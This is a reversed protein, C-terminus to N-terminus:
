TYMKNSNGRLVNFVTQMEKDTIKMFQDVYKHMYQIDDYMGFDVVLNKALETKPKLMASAVGGISNKLGLGTGSLVLNLNPLSVLVSVMPSLLSRTNFSNECSNLLIQAEDIFCFLNEKLQLSKMANAIQAHLDTSSCHKFINWGEVFLDHGSPTSLLTPSKIQLLLWYYPTSETLEKSKLLEILLLLRPLLLAITYAIAQELLEAKSKTSSIMAQIM